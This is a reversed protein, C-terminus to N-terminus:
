QLIGWERQQTVCPYTNRSLSIKRVEQFHKWASHRRWFVWLTPGLRPIRWSKSLLSLDQYEQPLLDLLSAWFWKSNFHTGDEHFLRRTTESYVWLPVVIHMRCCSSLFHWRQQQPIAIFSHYITNECVYHLCPCWHYFDAVHFSMSAAADWWYYSLNKHNWERRNRKDTPHM